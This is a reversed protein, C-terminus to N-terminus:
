ERKSNGKNDTAQNLLHLHTFNQERKRHQIETAKNCQFEKQNQKNFLKRQGGQKTRTM